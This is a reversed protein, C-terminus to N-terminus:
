ADHSLEFEARVHRPHNAALFQLIREAARGDGFPNEPTSMALYEREDDLVQLTERVIQARATGVLRAVGGDIGEPRETSERLVLVPKHFAPAEEQLGGSDTLVLFSRDLLWLLEHYDVPPVLQVREIALDQYVRRQVDPNPHVPCVVVVDGRARVIDRVAACIELLRAGHNERRHVTLLIMRCDHPVHIRGPAAATSRLQYLADIVTNGTVMVAGPAVGESLLRESALRTPAFHYTALQTTLRRNMEEPFPSYPDSTRLGAEVHGVAIKAHYAALAAAVTTATDGQVLVIDPRQREFVVPLATLVRAIVDTPRQHPTMVDLDVDARLGFTELASAALDRHQGTAVVSAAFPAGLRRAALAVPALKIAEPRTGLVCMLKLTSTM